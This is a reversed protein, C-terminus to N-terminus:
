ESEVRVLRSRTHREQDTRDSGWSNGGAFSDLEVHEVVPSHQLQRNHEIDSPFDTSIARNASQLCSNYPLDARYAQGDGALLVGCPSGLHSVGEGSSVLLRTQRWVGYEEIGYLCSMEGLDVDVDYRGLKCGADDPVRYRAGVSWCRLHVTRRQCRFLM